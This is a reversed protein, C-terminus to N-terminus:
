IKQQELKIKLKINEEKLTRLEQLLMDVDIIVPIDDNLKYRKKCRGEVHRKLHDSRSFIKSCFVCKHIKKGKNCNKTNHKHLGAKSSYIKLCNQCQNNNENINKLYNQPSDADVQCKLNDINNKIINDIMVKDQNNDKTEEKNKQVNSEIGINEKRNIQLGYEEIFEEMNTTGMSKNCLSCIPRLNYIKTEGNKHKAQVHGCEFNAYTIQEVNCCFCMGQKCHTGIYTNWVCNRVTSPIHKNKSM